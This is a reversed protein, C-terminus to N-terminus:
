RQSVEDEESEDFFDKTNPDIGRGFAWLAGGSFLTLAFTQATEPTERTKLFMLISLIVMCKGIWVIWSGLNGNPASTPTRHKKAGTAELFWFTLGFSLIGIFRLESGQM